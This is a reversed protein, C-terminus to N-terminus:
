KTVKLIVQPDDGSLQNHPIVYIVEEVQVNFEGHSGYNFCLKEGERPIVSLLMTFIQRREPLFEFQVCMM